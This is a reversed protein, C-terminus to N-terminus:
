GKRAAERRLINNFANIVVKDDLPPENRINWLMVLEYAIRYDIKKALLHGILSMMSENRGGDKVGKLIHLYDESPRINVESHKDQKVMDLLWQPAEAIQTEVPRSSLEWEYNGGSIHNSPSAVIYGGKGRIDLGELFGNKNVIGEHHKFLYHSGKSGTIAEVTEPLKGHEDILSELTIHGNHRPDVDLVFFGNIEGTPIGINSDPWKRFWETIANIDTTAANFGNWTRPHKGQNDCEKDGCTCQGNVVSHLPFV